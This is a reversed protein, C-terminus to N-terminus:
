LLEHYSGNSDLFKLFMWYLSRVSNSVLNAHSEFNSLPSTFKKSRLSEEGNRENALLAVHIEEISPVEGNRENALLAFVLTGKDEEELEEGFRQRGTGPAGGAAGEGCGAM